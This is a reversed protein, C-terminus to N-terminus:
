KISFIFYIIIASLVASITGIIIDRWFGKQNKDKIVGIGNGIHGSTISGISASYTELVKKTSNLTSNDNFISDAQKRSQENKNFSNNININFLVMIYNVEM